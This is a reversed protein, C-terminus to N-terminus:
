VHFSDIAVRIDSLSQSNRCPPLHLRPRSCLHCRLALASRAQGVASTAGTQVVSDGPRLVVIDNLLALATPPNITLGAAAELPLDRPVAHFASAPFTGAQRWSGQGPELAVAWDGPRLSTVQLFILRYVQMFRLLLLHLGTVAVVCNNRCQRGDLPFVLLLWRM